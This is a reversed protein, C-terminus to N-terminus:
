VSDKNRKIKWKQKQEMRNEKKSMRHMKRYKVEDM